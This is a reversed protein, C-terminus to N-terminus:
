RAVSKGIVLPSTRVLGVDFFTGDGSHTEGGGTSQTPYSTTPAQPPPPPPPPDYPTTTTPEAPAPAPPTSYTVPAPAVNVPVDLVANSSTTTVPAPSYPSSSSASSPFASRELCRKRRASRRAVTHINAQRAVHHHHHHRAALSSDRAHLGHPTILASASSALFSVVISLSFIM